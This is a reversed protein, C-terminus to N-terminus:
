HVTHIKAAEPSSKSAQPDSKAAEAEKPANMTLSGSIVAGREMTMTGTSINGEVRASQRFTVNGEVKLDGRVKGACVLESAFVNGIVVSKEDVSVTGSVHIDGTLSCSILDLRSANINSTINSHVVVSGSASMEGKFDGAVEVDGKVKLTGEMYSGSAIYTVSRDPTRVPAAPASVPVTYAPAPSAHTEPAPATQPDEDPNNGIGFMDFVAKNFNEKTAM